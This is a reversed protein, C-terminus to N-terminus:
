TRCDIPEPEIFDISFHPMPQNALADMVKEMFLVRGSRGGNAVGLDLM